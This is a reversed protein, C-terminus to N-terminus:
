MNVRITTTRDVYFYKKLTKPRKFKSDWDAKFYLANVILLKTSAAIMGPQVLNEIKGKTQAEVWNIIQDRAFEEDSFNVLEPVSFYTKRNTELFSPQVNLNDQIYLRNATRLIFNKEKPNRLGNLIYKLGPLLYEDKPLSMGYRIQNATKGRAGSLLMSMVSQVSFPSILINENKRKSIEQYLKTNLANNAKAVM